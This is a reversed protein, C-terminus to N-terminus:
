RIMIKGNALIENASVVEYFYLGPSLEEKGIRTENGTISQTRVINGLVDTILLTADHLNGPSSIYLTAEDHFPNPYVTVSINEAITSQVSEYGAPDTKILYFDDESSSMDRASAGIIYGGDSTQQVSEGWCWTNPRQFTRTWMTDGAADTKVLYAADMTGDYAEGTIIYGGDTTQQVAGGYSYNWNGIQKTWLTDGNMDTKVLKICTFTPNAGVLIYGGDTTQQVTRCSPNYNVGSYSKTWTAVGASDTKRLSLLSSNFGELIYGGDATQQLGFIQFTQWGRNWIAGGQSNRKYFESGGIVYNGQNDRIIAQGWQCSAGGFPNQWIVAGTSSLKILNVDCDSSSTYNKYGTIIFNGSDIEQINFANQGYGGSITKTWTTDGNVDTRIIQVGYTGTSDQTFGVAIYGGASCERVDNIDQSFQKPYTKEFQIQANVLTFTTCSLIMLLSKKM